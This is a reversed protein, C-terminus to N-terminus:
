EDAPPEPPMEARMAGYVACPVLRQSFHGFNLAQGDCLLVDGSHAVLLVGAFVSRGFFLFSTLVKFKTVLVVVAVAVAVGDALVSGHSVHVACEIFKPHTTSATSPAKMM